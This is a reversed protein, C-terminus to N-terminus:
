DFIHKRLILEQQSRYRQSRFVETDSNPLKPKKPVLEKKLIKKLQLPDYYWESTPNQSQALPVEIVAPSEGIDSSNPDDENGFFQEQKGENEDGQTNESSSSSSSSLGDLHLTVIRDASLYEHVGNQYTTLFQGTKGLLERSVIPIIELPVEEMKEEEHVNFGKKKLAQILLRARESNNFRNICLSVIKQIDSNSLEM